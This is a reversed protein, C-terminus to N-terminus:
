AGPAREARDIARGLAALTEPDLRAELLEFLEREEFRVHDNLLRGLENALELAEGAPLSDARLREGADCIQEHESCMRDGMAQLQDDGELAPLMVQEEIEFHKRGHDDFFETFRAVAEGLDETRARSLRLAAELAPHHDRSLPALAASRKM